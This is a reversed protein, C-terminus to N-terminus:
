WRAVIVFGNKKVVSKWGKALFIGRRKSLARRTWSNWKYPVVREPWVANTRPDIEEQVLSRAPDTKRTRTVVVDDLYNHVCIQTYGLGTDTSDQGLIESRCLSEMM